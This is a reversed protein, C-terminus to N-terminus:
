LKKVTECFCSNAKSYCGIRLYEYKEYFAWKKFLVGCRLIYSLTRKLLVDGSCQM